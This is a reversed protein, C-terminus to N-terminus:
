CLAKLITRIARAGEGSKPAQWSPKQHGNSVNVLRGSKKRIEIVTEDIVILRDM